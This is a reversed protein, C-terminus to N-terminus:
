PNQIKGISIKLSPDGEKYGEGESIFKIPMGESIKSLYACISDARKETLKFISVKKSSNRPKNQPYLLSSINPDPYIMEYIENSDEKGKNSENLSKRKSSVWPKSATIKMEFSENSIIYQTLINKLCIQYKELLHSDNPNFYFPMEIKNEISNVDFYCEVLELRQKIFSTPLSKIHSENIRELSGMGRFPVNEFISFKEKFNKAIKVSNRYCKKPDSSTFDYSILYTKNGRKEAEKILKKIQLIDKDSYSEILPNLYFREISNKSKKSNINETLIDMEIHLVKKPAKYVNECIKVPYVGNNVIHSSKEKNSYWDKFGLVKM